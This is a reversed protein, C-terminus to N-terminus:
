GILADLSTLRISRGPLDVSEVWPSVMPQEFKAGEANVVVIADLTPYTRVAEVTGVDGEPGIVRFGVLDALYYEDPELPPLEVRDIRVKAGRLADAGNRDDVGELKVIIHDTSKRVGTVVRRELKSGLVLELTRKAVIANSEARYLRLKLEGRIGHARMIVGVELQTPDPARM